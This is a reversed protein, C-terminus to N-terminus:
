ACAAGCSVLKTMAIATDRRGQRGGGAIRGGGIISVLFGVVTACGAGGGRNAILVLDGVIGAVGGGGGCCGGGGGGGGGGIGDAVLVLFGAISGFAGESGDSGGCANCSDMFIVVVARLM